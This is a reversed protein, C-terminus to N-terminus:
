FNNHYKYKNYHQKNGKKGENTQNQSKNKLTSIESYSYYVAVTNKEPKSLHNKYKLKIKWTVECVCNTHKQHCYHSKLGKIVFM